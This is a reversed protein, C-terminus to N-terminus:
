EKFINEQDYKSELKNKLEKEMNAYQNIQNKLNENEAQIQNAFNKNESIKNNLSNNDSFKDTINKLEDELKSFKKTLLNNQESMIKLTDLKESYKNILDEYVSKYISDPSNDIDDSKIHEDDKRICFLGNPNSKDLSSIKKFLSCTKKNKDYDFGVCNIDYLCSRKCTDVSIDNFTVLNDGDLSLNDSCQYDKDSVSSNNYDTNEFLEVNMNNFNQYVQNDYPSGDVSHFNM